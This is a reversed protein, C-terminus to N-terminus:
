VADDGGRLSALEARLTGAAKATRSKVTGIPIHLATSMEDYSLENVDRLVVVARFDPHLTLLAARVAAVRERALASAEPGM